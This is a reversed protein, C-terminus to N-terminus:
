AEGVTTSTFTDYPRTLLALAAWWFLSTWIPAALFSLGLYAVVRSRRGRPALAALSSVVSVLGVIGGMNILFGYGSSGFGAYDNSVGGGIWFRWPTLGGAIGWLGSYRENTSNDSGLNSLRDLVQVGAALNRVDGFRAIILSALLAAVVWFMPRRYWLSLAFLAAAFIGFLSVTLVMSIIGAITV